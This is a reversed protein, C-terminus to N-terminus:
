GTKGALDRENTGGNGARRAHRLKDLRTLSMFWLTNVNLILDWLSPRPLAPIWEAAGVDWWQTWPAWTAYKLESIQLMLPPLERGDTAHILQEVQPRVATSLEKLLLAQATEGLPWMSLLWDAIRLTLFEEPALLDEKRSAPYVIKRLRAAQDAKIAHPMAAAEALTPWVWNRM